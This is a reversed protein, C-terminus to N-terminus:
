NVKQTLKNESLSYGTIDDWNRRLAFEITKDTNNYVISWQTNSTIEEPKPLQQAAQLAQWVTASSYNGAEADLVEEIRDYRERGHGYIGNYQNPLVKDKYIYYFNTAARVPIDLMERTESECDYEIVRADGSEDTIFFQYDAGSVAFMDYSHLLDVAEQTTAARDLVLRIALTTFIDPKETQPKVSESDVLLVCISVGKENIGDLCILPTALTSMQDILGSIKHVKVHDLSATAVSKYGNKPACCVIMASTDIDFDYNRGMYVKGDTGTLSLASCGYNPAEISIPLYPVATGLIASRCAEMDPYERSLLGDLDYDYKVEMRYVDYEDGYATLKEITGITQLRTWYILLFVIVVVLILALLSLLVIKWIKRKKPKTKATGKAAANVTANTAETTM